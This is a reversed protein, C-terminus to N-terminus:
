GRTCVQLFQPDPQRDGMQRHKSDAGAGARQTWVATAAPFLEDLWLALPTSDNRWEDDIQLVPVQTQGTFAIQEPNTPDVPVFEFPLQKYYLCCGLKRVFPSTSYGYLRIKAM